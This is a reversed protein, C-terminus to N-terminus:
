GGGPPIKPPPAVRNTIPNPQESPRGGMGPHVGSPGFYQASPSVAYDWVQWRGTQFAVIITEGGFTGGQFEVRTDFVVAEPYRTPEIPVYRVATLKRAVIPQLSGVGGSWAREWTERFFFQKFRPGTREWSATVNGDKILNLWVTLEKEAEIVKDSMGGIASRDLVQAALPAAVLVALVGIWRRM